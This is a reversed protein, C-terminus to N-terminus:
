WSWTAQRELLELLPRVDGRAGGIVLDRGSHTAV